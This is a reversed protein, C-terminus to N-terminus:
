KKQPNTIPKIVTVDLAMSKGIHKFLCSEYFSLIELFNVCFKWTRFILSKADQAPHTRGQESFGKQSRRKLATAAWQLFDLIQGFFHFSHEIEIIKLGTAEIINRVKEHTFRQLHGAHKSKLDGFIGIKWLFWWLTFPEGECPVHVHAFGGSKLVRHMEKFLGAPEPIHEVIDFGFIYDFSSDHFPLRAVDGALWSIPVYRQAAHNLATKSVDLGITVLGPNCSALFATINGVGCGLDLIRAGESNELIIKFARSLKLAMLNKARPDFTGSENFLVKEYDFRIPRFNENKGM